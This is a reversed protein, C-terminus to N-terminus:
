SHIYQIVTSSIRRLYDAVSVNSLMRFLPIIHAYCTKELEIKIGHSSQAVSRVSLVVGDFLNPNKAVAEKWYKRITSRESENLSIETESLCFSVKDNCVYVKTNDGCVYSSSM